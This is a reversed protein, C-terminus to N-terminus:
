RSPNLLFSHFLHSITLIPYQLSIYLISIYYLLFTDHGTSSTCDHGFIKAEEKSSIYSALTAAVLIIKSVNPLTAILDKTLKDLPSTSIDMSSTLPRKLPGSNSVTSFNLAIAVDQDEIQNQALERLQPQYLSQVANMCLARLDQLISAPISPVPIFPFPILTSSSSTNTVEVPYSLLCQKWKGGLWNVILRFFVPFSSLITTKLEGLERCGHYCM